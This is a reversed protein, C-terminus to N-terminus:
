NIFFKLLFLENKSNKVELTYFGKSIDYEELDIEYENQGYQKYNPQDKKEKQNMAKPQIPERAENYITCSVVGGIYEEDFKFFLKNDQPTYFSGDLQKRLSSYSVTTKTNLADIKFEWTETKNLVTGNGIKSVLWAYRKGRQLPKAEYPYPVAHTTVYDKLMVPSNIAIAEEPSQDEKIEAVTMRFFEGTSLINFPESHLWSLVPTTTTILEKDAPYVLYLYQNFDSQIEDCFQNPESGNIEQVELCIRFVGSPLTHATKIYSAQNGATFEVSAVRASNGYVSNVGPKVSFAASRVVALLDNNLNYLRSTLYVEQEKGQNMLTASLLSEATINYPMVSANVVSVQANAMPLIAITLFMVLLKKM